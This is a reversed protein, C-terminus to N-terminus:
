AGELTMRGIREMGYVGQRGRGKGVSANFHGGIIVSKRRGNSTPRGNSEHVRGNWTM